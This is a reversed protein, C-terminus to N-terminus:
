SRVQVSEMNEYKVKLALREEIMENHMHACTRATGRETRAEIYSQVWSSAAVATNGKMTLLELWVAWGRPPIASSSAVDVNKGIWM